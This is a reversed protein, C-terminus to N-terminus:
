QGPVVPADPLQLEVWPASRLLHHHHILTVNIFAQRAAGLLSYPLRLTILRGSDYRV